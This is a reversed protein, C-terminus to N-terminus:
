TLTEELNKNFTEITINTNLGKPLVKIDLSVHRRGQKIGIFSWFRDYTAKQHKGLGNIKILVVPTDPLKKLIKYTGTLYPPIEERNSIRVRGAPFLLISNENNLVKTMTLLTTQTQQARKSPEWSKPSSMPIAAVIKMPLWQLWNYYENYHATPRIRLTTYLSSIIIPADHRSVHSALVLCGPLEQLLHKNSISINYFLSYYVRTGLFIAHRVPKGLVKDIIRKM